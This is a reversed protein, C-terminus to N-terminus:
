FFIFKEKAKFYMYYLSTLYVFIFNNMYLNPLSMEIVNIEIDIIHILRIQKSKSNVKTAAFKKVIEVM